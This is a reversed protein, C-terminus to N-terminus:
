NIDSFESEASTIPEKFSADPLKSLLENQINEHMQIGLLVAVRPRKLLKVKTPDKHATVHQELKQKTSFICSCISCILKKGEHKSRIHAMLNRKANYFKSCNEYHCEFVEEVAIHLKMHQKINPKRSFTKGCCDCQFRKDSSHVVRRHKVLQTWNRFTENCEACTKVKSKHTNLHKTYTIISFFGHDCESCKYSYDGTNHAEKLHKKVLLKRHFRLDCQTCKYPVLKEHTIRYHRNM